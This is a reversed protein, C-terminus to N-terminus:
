ECSTPAAIPSGRAHARVNAVIEVNRFDEMERGSRQLAFQVAAKQFGRLGVLCSAGEHGATKDSGVYEIEQHGNYSAKRRSSRADHAGNRRAKCDARGDRRNDDEVLKM